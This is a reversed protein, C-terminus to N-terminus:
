PLHALLNSRETRAWTLAQDADTLAPVATPPTALARTQSSRAGLGLQAEALAATHQYYNLLRNLAQERERAPDAAARDGAYRRILDHMGYRRYGAETLLGEGHLADLFGSAERPAQGGAGRCCLRRLHYGPRPRPPPLVGAPRPGPVQLVSRVRRGRQGEEAALTLMSARTEATLDALTWSPHGAYVRALLSIALPLFGALRVLGAVAADPDAAARPALRM